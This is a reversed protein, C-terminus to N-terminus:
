TQCTTAATLVIPTRQWVYQRCFARASRPGAIPQIGCAKLRQAMQKPSMRALAALETGLIYQEQFESLAHIDVWQAVRRGASDTTAPLLRARILAYAVEQRVGLQLAVDGVSLRSAGVTEAVSRWKVLDDKSLRWKGIEQKSGPPVWVPLEGIQIAGILSVFSKASAISCKALLAVSVSNKPATAMKRVSHACSDLSIPDVWWRQGAGPTGGLVALLGAELLQRVRMRSIGLHVATQEATMAQQMRDAYNRVTSLNVIRACRGSRHTQERTPIERGKAMRTLLAREVGSRKAAECVPVWTHNRVHQLGINRNRYALPAEWHDSIYSEFATRVFDFRPDKLYHYIDKYIPGVAERIKWSSADRRQERIADLMGEFGHPWNMLAKGAREAVPIAVALAGASRLKLPKNRNAIAGRVGFRLALEHFEPLTLDNTIHSSHEGRWSVRLALQQSIWLAEQGAPQFALDAHALPLGCVDCELCRMAEISLTAGCSGCREQFWIRHWPCCTALTLCWSARWYGTEIMCRPCFKRNRYSWPRAPRTSPHLVEVFQNGWIFPHGAECIWSRTDTQSASRFTKVLEAVTLANSSACRALFGLLDEDEFPTPVVALDLM